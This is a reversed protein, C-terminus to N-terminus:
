IIRRMGLTDYTKISVKSVLTACTNGRQEYKNINAKQHGSYCKYVRQLSVYRTHILGICDLTDQPGHIVSKTSQWM